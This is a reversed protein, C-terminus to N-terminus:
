INQKKETEVGSQRKLLINKQWQMPLFLMIPIILCFITYIHAESDASVMTIAVRLMYIIM